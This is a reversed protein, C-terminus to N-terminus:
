LKADVVPVVVAGLLAGQAVAPLQEGLPEPAQRLVSCPLPYRHPVGISELSTPGLPVPDQLGCGCSEARLTIPNTNMCDRAKFSIGWLM